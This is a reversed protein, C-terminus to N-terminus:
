GGGKKRARWGRMYERQYKGRDFGTVAPSAEDARRLMEERVGALAARAREDEVPLEKRGEDARALAARVRYGLGAETDRGCVESPLHSRGCLVCKLGLGM